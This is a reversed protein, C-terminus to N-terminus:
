LNSTLESLTAAVSSLVYDSVIERSKAADYLEAAINEIGSLNCELGSVCTHVKPIRETNLSADRELCRGAPFPHGMLVGIRDILQGANLDKTGGILEIDFTSNTFGNILLIETTGGSVHFAAFRKGVLDMAGSSYLAAAVHGAQHSFDYCPVAGSAAAVSSAGKGVLFCPMYSGAVDRPKVSAGAACLECDTHLSIFEEIASSVLELNVTHQFVADSQRLGREGEKVSLLKKFNLEVKGEEDCVAFSTTYNSTDFGFFFKSM